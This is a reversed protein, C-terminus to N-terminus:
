GYYTINQVAQYRYRKNKTDFAPYDGGRRSSSIQPLLVLDDLATKVTENLMAAALLSPGYSDAVFMASDLLNERGSDGKKLVIFYEPPEEPFEMFVPADLNQEVFKKVTLEIM